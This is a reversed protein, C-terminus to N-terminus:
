SWKSYHCQCRIVLNDKTMHKSGIESLLVTENNQFHCLFFIDKTIPNICDVLVMLNSNALYIAEIIWCLLNKM